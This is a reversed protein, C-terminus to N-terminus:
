HTEVVTCDTFSTIHLRACVHNLDGVSQVSVMMSPAMVAATSRFGHLLKHSIALVNPSDLVLTRSNSWSPRDDVDMGSRASQM